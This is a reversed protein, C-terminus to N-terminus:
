TSRTLAIAPSVDILDAFGLAPVHVVEVDACRVTRNDDRAKHGPDM